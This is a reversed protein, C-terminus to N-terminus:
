AARSASHSDKVVSSSHMPVNETTCYTWFQRLLADGAKVLVFLSVPDSFQFAAVELVDTVVRGPCISRPDQRLLGAGCDYALFQAAALAFVACGRVTLASRRTRAVANVTPAATHGHSTCKRRASWVCMGPAGLNGSAKYIRTLTPM